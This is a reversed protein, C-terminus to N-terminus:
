NPGVPQLPYLQHLHIGKHALPYAAEHQFINSVIIPIVDWLWGKKPRPGNMIWAHLGHGFSPFCCVKCFQQCFGVGSLSRM